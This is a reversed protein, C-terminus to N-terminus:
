PGLDFRPSVLIKAADVSLYFEQESFCDPTAFSVFRCLGFILDFVRVLRLYAGM